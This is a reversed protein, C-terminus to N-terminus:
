CEPWHTRSLAERLEVLAVAVRGLFQADVSDSDPGNLMLDLLRGNKLLAELRGSATELTTRASTWVSESNHTRSRRRSDFFLHRGAEALGIEYEILATNLAKALDAALSAFQDDRDAIQAANRAIANISSRADRLGRAANRRLSADYNM